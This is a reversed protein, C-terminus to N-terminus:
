ADAYWDYLAWLAGDWGSLLVRLKSGVAAVQTRHVVPIIVVNKILLDNM